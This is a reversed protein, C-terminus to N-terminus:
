DKRQADQGAKKIRQEAESLKVGANQGFHKKSVEHLRKLKQTEVAEAEGKLVRNLDQKNDFREVKIGGKQLKDLSNLAYYGDRHWGVGGGQLVFGKSGVCRFIDPSSCYMCKEPQPDDLGYEETWVIGCSRCEHEYEIGM